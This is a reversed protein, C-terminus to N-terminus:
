KEFAKLISIPVNLIEVESPIYGFYAQKKVGRGRAPDM